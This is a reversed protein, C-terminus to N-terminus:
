QQSVKSKISKDTQQNRVSWLYKLTGVSHTQIIYRVPVNYNEDLLIGSLLKKIAKKCLIIKTDEFLCVQQRSVKKNSQLIRGGSGKMLFQYQNQTKHIITLRNYSRITAYDGLLLVDDLEYSHKGVRRREHVLRLKVPAFEYESKVVFM